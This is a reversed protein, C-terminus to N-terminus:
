CAVSVIKAKTSSKINKNKNNEKQKNVKANLRFDFYTEFCFYDISKHDCLILCSHETFLALWVWNRLQVKSKQPPTEPVVESNQDSM